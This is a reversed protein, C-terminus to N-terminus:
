ALGTLRWGGKARREGPLRARIASALASLALAAPAAIAIAAVIIASCCLIAFLVIIDLLGFFNMAAGAGDRMPAGAPLGEIDKGM